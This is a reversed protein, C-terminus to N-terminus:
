PMKRMQQREGWPWCVKGEDSLGWGRPFPGGTDCLAGGKCSVQEHSGVWMRTPPGVGGLKM